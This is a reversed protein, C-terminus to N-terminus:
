YFFLPQHRDDKPRGPSDFGEVSPQKRVMSPSDFGEPKRNNHEVKDSSRLILDGVWKIKEFFTSVLLFRVPYNNKM